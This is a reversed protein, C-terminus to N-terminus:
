IEVGCLEETIAKVRRTSVCQVYMEALAIMLAREIRMGKELASPLFGGERVQPITFTIDGLNTRVTKPKFGNAHIKREDTREYANAQM